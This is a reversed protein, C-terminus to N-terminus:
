LIRVCFWKEKYGGGKMCVKEYEGEEEWKMGYMDNKKRIRKWGGGEGSMVYKRIRENMMEYGIEGWEGMKEDGM